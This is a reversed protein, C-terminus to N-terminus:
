RWLRPLLFLSSIVLIAGVAMLAIGLVPERSEAAGEWAKWGALGAMVGIPFLAGIVWRKM